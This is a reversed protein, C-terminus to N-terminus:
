SAEEDDPPMVVLNSPLQVSRHGDERRVVPGSREFGAVVGPWGDGRVTFVWVEAGVALPNGVVDRAQGMRLKPRLPPVRRWRGPLAAVDRPTPVPTPRSSAPSAAPSPRQGGDWANSGNM